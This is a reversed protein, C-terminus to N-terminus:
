QSVICSTYAVLSLENELPLPQESLTRLDPSIVSNTAPLYLRPFQDNDKDHELNISLM